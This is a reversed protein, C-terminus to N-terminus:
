LTQFFAASSEPKRDLDPIGMRTRGLRVYRLGLRVLKRLQTEPPVDRGAALLGCTADKICNAIMRRRHRRVPDTFGLINRFPDNRLRRCFGRWQNWVTRYRELGLLRETARRGRRRCTELKKHLARLTRSINSNSFKIGSSGLKTNLRLSFALFATEVVNLRLRCKQSSSTAADTILGHLRLATGDFDPESPDNNSAVESIFRACACNASRLADHLLNLQLHTFRIALKPLERTTM